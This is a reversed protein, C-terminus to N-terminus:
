SGGTGTGAGAGTGAGPSGQQTAGQVAIPLGTNVAPLQVTDTLYREVAAAAPKGAAAGAPLGEALDGPNAVMLGLDTQTACGFNSSPQNAFDSNSAKSWNPCAPLTVLTRGVAIVARNPPTAGGPPEAVAVVGYRLLLASVAAVRARALGPAGAAAVTVRDSPVIGGTAALQRLRAADAVALTASGPAFRVDVETTTSDLRLNKPAEADSYTTVPACAGLFLALSLALFSPNANM